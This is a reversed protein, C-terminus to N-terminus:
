ACFVAVVFGKQGLYRLDSVEYGVGKVTSVYGVM